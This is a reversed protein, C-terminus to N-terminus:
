ERAPSCEVTLFASTSSIAVTVPYASDILVSWWVNRRWWPCVCVVWRCSSSSMRWTFSMSPYRFVFWASTFALNVFNSAAQVVVTFLIVPYNLVFHVSYASASRVSLFSYARYAALSLSAAAVVLYPEVAREKAYASYFRTLDRPVCTILRSALFLCRV